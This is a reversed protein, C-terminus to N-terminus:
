FKLCRIQQKIEELITPHAYYTTENVRILKRQPIYYTVIKTKQFPRFPLSFLREKWTRKVELHIEDVLSPCPIFMVRKYLSGIVGKLRSPLGTNVSDRM